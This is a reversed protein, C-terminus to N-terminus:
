IWPRGRWSFCHLLLISEIVRNQGFYMPFRSLRPTRVCDQSSPTAEHSDGTLRELGQDVAQVIRCGTKAAPMLDEPVDRPDESAGGCDEPNGPRAGRAPDDLDADLRGEHGEVKLAVGAAIFQRRARRRERNASDHAIAAHHRFGLEPAGGEVILAHPRLVQVGEYVEPSGM